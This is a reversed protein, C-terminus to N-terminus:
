KGLLGDYYSKLVGDGLEWLCGTKTKYLEGDQQMVTAVGGFHTPIPRPDISVFNYEGVYEMPPFYPKDMEEDRTKPYPVAHKNIPKEKVPVIAGGIKTAQQSHLEARMKEVERERAYVKAWKKKQAAKIRGEEERLGRADNEAQANIDQWASQLLGKEDNIEKQLDKKERWLKANVLEAAAISMEGDETFTLIGYWDMHERAYGIGALAGMSDNDFWWVVDWGLKERQETREKVSAAAPRSLEIEHCVKKGDIMYVGVDAIVDSDIVELEIVTAGATNNYMEMVALKGAKHKKSESGGSTTRCTRSGTGKKHAFHPQVSNSTIARLRMVGDCTRDICSFEMAAIKHLERKTYGAINFQIGNEDIASFPM